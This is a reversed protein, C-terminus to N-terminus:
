PGCAKRALATAPTSKPLRALEARGEDLRGLSCLAQARAISREQQLAGKPFKRQHEELAILAEAALGSRLARTARSLLEVEHALYDPAKPPSAKAVPKRKPPPALEAPAQVEPAPVTAVPATKELPAPSVVPTPQASPKAESTLGRWAVAGLLLVGLAAGTLVQWSVSSLAHANTELEPSAQGHLRAQLAADIRARDSDSPRLSSRSREILARARPSLESM